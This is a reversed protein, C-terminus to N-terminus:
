IFIKRLIDPRRTVSMRYHMKFRDPGAFYPYLLMM